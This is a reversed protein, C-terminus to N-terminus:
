SLRCNPAWNHIGCIAVKKGNNAPDNEIEGVWKRLFKLFVSSNTPAILSMGDAGNIRKAAVGIVQLGPDRDERRSLADGIPVYARYVAGGSDGECVAAGGVARIPQDGGASVVIAAVGQYLPLRGQADRNNNTIGVAVCGFGLLKVEYGIPKGCRALKLADTEGVQVPCAVMGDSTRTSITEFKFGSFKTTPAWCLAVDYAERGDVNSYEPNATCRLSVDGGTSGAKVVYNTNPEVCHAATLVVGEGVITATCTENAFRNDRKFARTAEWQKPDARWGNIIQPEMPPKEGILIMEITQQAVAPQILGCTGLLMTPLIARLTLRWTNM